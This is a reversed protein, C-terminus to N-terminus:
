PSLTGALQRLLDAKRLDPGALEIAESLSAEAGAEDGLSERAVALNTLTQIQGERNDLQRFRKLADELSEGAQGYDDLSLHLAGIDATAWAYLSSDALRMAAERARVLAEGAETARGVENLAFALSRYLAELQPPADAAEARRLANRFWRIAKGFRGRDVELTALNQFPSCRKACNAPRGHM